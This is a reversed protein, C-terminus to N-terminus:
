MSFHIKTSFCTTKNTFNTKMELPREQPVKDYNARYLYMIKKSIKRRKM